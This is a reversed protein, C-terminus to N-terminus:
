IPWSAGLRARCRGHYRPEAPPMGYM